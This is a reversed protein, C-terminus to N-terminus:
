NKIIKKEDVIKLAMNAAKREAERISLGEAQIKELNLVNLTVTFIPSHSPGKKNIIKYEPLKKSKQQSLEQLITKPDQTKSVTIDLYPSWFKNVFNFASKYGGDIFIGGILSEVSDSLISLLMKKNNKKYNYNLINVLSLESSIKHLFNKQVLYSYKKSMDGEDLDKHKNFLLSAIILGLVRDGLFELREFQNAEGILVNKDKLSSPHTLSELLISKNKFKYGIRNEFLLLKKESIM